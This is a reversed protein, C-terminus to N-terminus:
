VEEVTIGHCVLMLKKKLLFLQYVPKSRDRRGKVDEVITRGHEVYQFDARYVCLHVGHLELTYCKQWQLNSIEGALQRDRLFEYRRAEKKSAFRINDVFTPEASYKNSGPERTGTPTATNAERLLRQYETEQVPPPELGTLRTYEEDSYRM